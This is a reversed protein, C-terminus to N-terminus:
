QGINRDDRRSTYRQPSPLAEPKRTMAVAAGPDIDGSVAVIELTEGSVSRMKLVKECYESVPGRASMSVYRGTLRYFAEKTALKQKELSTIETRLVGAYIQASVYALLLVALVSYVFITVGVKSRGALASVVFGTFKKHLEHDVTRRM